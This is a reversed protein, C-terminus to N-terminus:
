GRVLGSENGLKKGDSDVAGIMAMIYPVM